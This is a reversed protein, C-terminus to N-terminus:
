LLEKKKLRITQGEPSLMVGWVKNLAIREIDQMKDIINAKTDGRQIMSLVEQVTDYNEKDDVPVEYGLQKNQEISKKFGSLAQCLLPISKAFDEKWIDGYGMALFRLADDNGPCSCYQLGNCKQKESLFLFRDYGFVDLCSFIEQRFQPEIVETWLTKMQQIDYFQKYSTSDDIALDCYFSYIDDKRNGHPTFTKQAYFYNAYSGAPSVLVHIRTRNYSIEPWVIQVFHEAIKVLHKGKRPSLVFGDAECMTKLQQYLFKNMETTSWFKEADM